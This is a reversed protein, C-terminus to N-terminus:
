AKRKVNDHEGAIPGREYYRIVDLMGTATIGRSLKKTTSSLPTDYLIRKTVWIMPRRVLM